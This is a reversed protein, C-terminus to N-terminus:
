REDATICWDLVVACVTTLGAAGRCREFVREFVRGSPWESPLTFLLRLWVGFPALPFQGSETNSTQPATPAAFPMSVTGRRDPLLRICCLGDQLGPARGGGAQRGADGRALLPLCRMM